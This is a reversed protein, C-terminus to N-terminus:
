WQAKVTVVRSDACIPSHHLAIDNIRDFSYNPLGPNLMARALNRVYGIAQSSLCGLATVNHSFNWAGMIGPGTKIVYIIQRRCSQWNQNPM